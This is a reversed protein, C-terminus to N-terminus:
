VTRWFLFRANSFTLPGCTFLLLLFLLLSALDFCSIIELGPTVKSYSMILYPQWSISLMSCKTSPHLTAARAFRCSVLIQCKQARFFIDSTTHMNTDKQEAEWPSSTLYFLFLLRHRLFHRYCFNWSCLLFVDCSDTTKCSETLEKCLHWLSPRTRM